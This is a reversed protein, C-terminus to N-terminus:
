PCSRGEMTLVAAYQPLPAIEGAAAQRKAEELYIRPKGQGDLPLSANSAPKRWVRIVAQQTPCPASPIRILDNLIWGDAVSPTVKTPDVLRARPQCRSGTRKAGYRYPVAADAVFSGHLYACTEPIIRITHTQGMAQPPFPERRIEPQPDAAQASLACIPLLMWLLWRRMDSADMFLITSTSVVCQPYRDPRKDRATVRVRRPQVVVM